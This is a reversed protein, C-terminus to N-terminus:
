FMEVTSILRRDRNQIESDCVGSLQRTILLSYILVILASLLGILASLVGILVLLALVNCTILLSLSYFKGGNFSTVGWNFPKCWLLQKGRFGSLTYM